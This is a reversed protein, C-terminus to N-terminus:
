NGWFISFSYFNLCKDPISANQELKAFPGSSSCLARKLYKATFIYNQHCIQFYKENVFACTDWVYTCKKFEMWKPLNVVFIWCKLKNTEFFSNWNSESQAIIRFLYLLCSFLVFITFFFHECSCLNRQLKIHRSPM